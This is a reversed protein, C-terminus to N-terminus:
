ENGNKPLEVRALLAVDNRFKRELVDQQKEIERLRALIAENEPTVAVLSTISVKRRGRGDDANFWVQDRGRYDKDAVSTIRGKHLQGLSNPYTDLFYAEIPEWPKEKKTAVKDLANDIWERAKPLSPAKRERGNATFRWVNEDELLVIEVDRYTETIPKSM